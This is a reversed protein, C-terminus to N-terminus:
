ATREYEKLNYFIKVIFVLQELVFVQNWACKKVFFIM